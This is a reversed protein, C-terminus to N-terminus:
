APRQPWPLFASIYWPSRRSTPKVEFAIGNGGGLAIQALTALKQAMAAEKDSRCLAYGNIQYAPERNKGASLPRVLRWVLWTGNDRESEVVGKDCQCRLSYSIRRTM